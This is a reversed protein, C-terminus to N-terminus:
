SVPVQPLKWIEEAYQRITRDSSFKGMRATNLIAKYTWESPNKYCLGVEGQKKCYSEYDALVLFPDGGDLLSNMLPALTDHPENPIFHRSGLWDMVAKLEENENYYDWPNYGKKRLKMVEEVTLGFIFINEDGVEEKIEVNAGDLTGITLAGNLSLKMNGTGSAEKGATSIQESLDAAPIIKSALSVRYNPLFVVKLRDKVRPDQNIQLAVSNIAKIICKAVQYGPAAKAGFIFVRPAIDLDPDQIIKRYMTLINLLSLHQRKYEHLRKIQVDFMADPSVIVGCEEKIIEALAVKNERKVHRFAEQFGSDSAKPELERLRDLDTVWEEHGLTETILSSLGENNAQLWRRPTIGNTKNNFKKPYLENFEPFLAETLLKTHLAAVGNVSHSGVVALHAMRIMQVPGEEILSLKRKMEDNNPWHADVEKLFRKNIEFIIQLHRPLVKQFLPVSWKELAEPLLTHNTYGFVDTTIKWAENWSLEYDDHLTRMLEAVAVAPHTDNLQVAVKEAFISWDGGDQRIFRRIIDKLSCAVFFYQQILRLEKGNETSDNPYLVKYITEGFNRSSLAEDYNGENFVELNFQDDSRSEWLRLFNVTKGGYGCIPIDYPIGLIPTADVWRSKYNGDDDFVNEVRGFIMVKETYEPRVIEWAQGYRRWEDPLEIQYGNVFEQKFLGYEYHIGYGVAPYDQTALSDLFCAALRGLGGNGLGMDYEEERLSHIDHGLEKLAQGFVGFVKMNQLNNVFLRGMLYELSLYYIRRVKEEAHKEQTEIMRELVTENLAKVTATWWDHSTATKPDRALSYKLHRLIAAKVEESTTCAGADVSELAATM